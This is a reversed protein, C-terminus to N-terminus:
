GMTKNVRSFGQVLAGDCLKAVHELPPQAESDLKDCNCALWKTSLQSL